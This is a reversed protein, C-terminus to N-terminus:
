TPITRAILKMYTLLKVGVTQWDELILRHIKIQQGPNYDTDLGLKIPDILVDM